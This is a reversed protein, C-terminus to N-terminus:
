TPFEANILCDRLLGPVYLDTVALNQGFIAPQRLPRPLHRDLQHGDRVVGACSPCVYSLWPMYSVTVALNHGHYPMYLVTVASTPSLRTTIYSLRPRPRPLHHDLQHGAGAVTSNISNVYLVQAAGVASCTSCRSNVCLVQSPRPSRRTSPWRTCCRYRSTHAGTSGGNQYVSSRYLQLSSYIVGM